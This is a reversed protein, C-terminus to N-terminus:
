QAAWERIVDEVNAGRSVLYALEMLIRMSATYHIQDFPGGLSYSFCFPNRLGPLGGRQRKSTGLRIEMSKWQENEQDAVFLSYEDFNARGEVKWRKKARDIAKVLCWHRPAAAPLRLIAAALKATTIDLWTGCPTDQLLEQIKYGCVHCPINWNAIRKYPLVCGCRPCGSILVQGHIHCVACERLQHSRHWYFVGHERIDDQVCQLCIADSWGGVLQRRIEILDTLEIYWQNSIFVSPRKRNDYSYTRLRFPADTFRSMVDLDSLDFQEGICRVLQRAEAYPTGSYRTESFTSLQQMAYPVSAHCSTLVYRFILGILNDDPFPSPFLPLRDM